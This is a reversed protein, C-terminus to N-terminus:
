EEDMAEGDRLNRAIDAEASKRVQEYLEYAPSLRSIQALAEKARDRQQIDAPSPQGPLSSRVGSIASGFLDGIGTKVLEPSVARCRELFRVIFPRHVFILDQDAKHLLRSMLILEDTSATELRGDFFSTLGALNGGFMADFVDAAHNQFYLKERGANDCLWAWARALMEPADNSAQFRLPVKIYPGYNVPRFSFTEAKAAIEVRAFLFDALQRPFRLSLSSLFGELWYGELQPINTLRRLFHDADETTLQNLPGDDSERFLMFVRDALDPWAELHIKKCLDILLPSDSRWRWLCEIAASVVPKYHSALALGILMIDREDYMRRMVSFSAAAARALDVDASELFQRALHQGEQPEAVLVESLATALFARTHSKPHARADDIFIRSLELDDRLLKNVLMHANNGDEGAETLQALNREVVRHLETRSHAIKLDAVVINLWAECNKQWDSQSGV